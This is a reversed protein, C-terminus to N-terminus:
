IQKKILINKKTEFHFNKGFIDKRQSNFQPVNKNPESNEPVKQDAKDVEDDNDDDEEITYQSM